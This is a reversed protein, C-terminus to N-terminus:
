TGFFEVIRVELAHMRFHPNSHRCQQEGDASDAEPWACAAGGFAGGVTTKIVSKPTTSSETASQLPTIYEMAGSNRM